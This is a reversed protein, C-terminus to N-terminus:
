LGTRTRLAAHRGAKVPAGLTSSVSSSANPPPWQQGPRAGDACGLWARLDLELKEGLFLAEECNEEGIADLAEGLRAAADRLVAVARARSKAARLSKPAVPTEAASFGARVSVGCDGGLRGREPSRRRAPG